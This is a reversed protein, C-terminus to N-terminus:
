RLAYFWSGDYDRDVTEESQVVVGSADVDAAPLGVSRLLDRVEAELESSKSLSDRQVDSRTCLWVHTGVQTPFASIFEIRLVGRNAFQNLLQVKASQLVAWRPDDTM